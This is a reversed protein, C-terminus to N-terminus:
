NVLERWYSALTAFIGHLPPGMQPVSLALVGLGVAVKLPMAVIFINMQPMTRAVVGLAVDLLLLTIVAPAVLALGFVFMSGFAAVMTAMDLRQLGQGPPVNVVSEAVARIIMHHGDVAFFIAVAMLNLATGLLPSAARTAPDFLTAVGFGIQIDLLRGGFLFAAFACMLGFAMAAGLLVEAFAAAILGGSDIPALAVWQPNASALMAALALGLLTRLHLPISASGLVPVLVFLPGLRMALLLVASLWAIEVDINM